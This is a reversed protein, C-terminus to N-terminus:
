AADDAPPNSFGFQRVRYQTSAFHLADVVTDFGPQTRTPTPEATRPLHLTPTFGGDPHAQITCALNPLARLTM